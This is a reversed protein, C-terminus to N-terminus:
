WFRLGIYGFYAASRKDENSAKTWGTAREFQKKGKQDKWMKSIRHLHYDFQYYDLARVLEIQAQRCLGMDSAAKGFSNKNATRNHWYARNHAVDEVHFKLKHGEEKLALVMELLAMLPLCHLAVLKDDRYFAVGHAQSDPDIGITYQHM